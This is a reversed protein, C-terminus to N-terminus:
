HHYEFSPWIQLRTISNHLLLLNHVMNETRKKGLENISKYSIKKLINNCSCLSQQYNIVLVLVLPANTKTLSIMTWYMYCFLMFM